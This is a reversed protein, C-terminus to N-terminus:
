KRALLRTLSHSHLVNNNPHTEVLDKDSVIITRWDRYCDLYKAHRLLCPHFGPHASSLEQKRDNFCAIAHYGGAKTANQIQHIVELISASSALCHFLGYAVVIDYSGDPWSMQSADACKWNIRNCEGWAARARQIAIESIDYADVVCGYRALFAANKGDGCGLDLVRLNTPASLLGALATVISGPERGWFCECAIYGADYGGDM